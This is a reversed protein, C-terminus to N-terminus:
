GQRDMEGEVTKASIFVAAFLALAALAFVALLGVLARKLFKGM